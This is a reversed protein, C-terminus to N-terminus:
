GEFYKSNIRRYQYPTIGYHEKFLKIFYQSKKYGVMQSIDVIHLNSELLLQAAKKMRQTLLFSSLNEGTEQKYYKSLYVPHLHVLNGIEELNLAKDLHNLIYAQISEVMNPNSPKSRHESQSVVSLMETIIPELEEPPDFVWYVVQETPMGPIAAYLHCIWELQFLIQRTRSQCGSYLKQVSKMHSELENQAFLLQKQLGRLFISDALSVKEGYYFQMFESRASNKEHLFFPASILFDSNKAHLAAASSAPLMARLKAPSGSGSGSGSAFWVLNNLTGAADRLINETYDSPNRHHIFIFPESNLAKIYVSNKEDLQSSDALVALLLGIGDLESWEIVSTTREEKVANVARLITQEMEEKDVPKLLYDAAGFRIASQTYEFDSYGSLFIVKCSLQHDHIWKLLDVGTVEPMRIDTLLIDITNSELIQKAELPNTTTHVKHIGFKSWDLLHKVYEVIYQGDDVILLRM